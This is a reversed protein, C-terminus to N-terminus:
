SHRVPQLQTQAYTMSLARESSYKMPRHKAQWWHLSLCTTSVCPSALVLSKWTWMVTCAAMLVPLSSLLSACTAEMPLSVTEGSSPQCSSSCAKGSRSCEKLDTTHSVTASPIWLSVM